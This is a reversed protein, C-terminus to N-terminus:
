FRDWFYQTGQNKKIEKKMKKHLKKSHKGKYDIVSNGDDKIYKPKVEFYKCLKKYMKIEDKIKEVDDAM